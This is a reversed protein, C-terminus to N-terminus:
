TAARKDAYMAEDAVHLLQDATRGDEPFVVVGVSASVREDPDLGPLPSEIARVVKDAVVRAQERNEVGELIVLFEDGGVRAATDNRRLSGLLRLAIEVLMRDGAKHGYRDNIAKFRELDIYLLAFRERRRECRALTQELREGFLRRNPLGTLPDHMALHAVRNRQQLLLYLMLALAAAMLYGGYRHGAISVPQLHSSAAADEVAMEWRGGPVAIDMRVADRDFLAQDGLIPRAPHGDAAAARLALRLGPGSEAIGFAAILSDIDIVLSLMGWYSGDEMFVPTRSILGRGGQILDVPGDLISTGTEMARQIAPWQEPLDRYRVGVARENGALPYLYRLENDPALGINRLHRGHRHLVALARLVRAEDRLDDSSIFGILGDAIHLTANLEAEIRARLGAAERLLQNAEAERHAALEVRAVYEALAALLLFVLVAAIWPLWRHRMAGTDVARM